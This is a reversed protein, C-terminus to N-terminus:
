DEEPMEAFNVFFPGDASDAPLQTWYAGTPILFTLDTSLPTEGFWSYPESFENADVQGDFNFDLNYYTAVVSVNLANGNDDTVNMAVDVGENDDSQAIDAVMLADEYSTGLYPKFIDEADLSFDYSYYVIGGLHGILDRNDDMRVKYEPGPVKDGFIVVQWRSTALLDPTATISADAYGEDQMADVLAEAAPNSLAWPDPLETQPEEVFIYYGHGTCFVPTENTSVALNDEVPFMENLAPDYILNETFAVNSLTFLVSSIDNGHNDLTYVNEAGPLSGEGGLDDDPAYIYGEFTDPSMNYRPDALLDNDVYAGIVSTSILNWGPQLNIVERKDLRLDMLVPLSTFGSSYAISYDTNSLCATTAIEYQGVDGPYNDPDRDVVLIIAEGSYFGRTSSTKGYVKLYFQGDDDMATAGYCRMPDVAFAKIADYAEDQTETDTNDFGEDVTLFLQDRHFAYVNGGKMPDGNPDYVIGEIRMSSIGKEIVDILGDPEDPVSYKDPMTGQILKMETDDIYNGAIDKLLYKYDDALLHEEIVLTMDSLVIDIASDCTGDYDPIPNTEAEEVTLLLALKNGGCSYNSLGVPDSDSTLFTEITIDNNGTEFYRDAYTPEDWIDPDMDESFTLVVMYTNEDEDPNQSKLAAKVGIFDCDDFESADDCDSDPDDDTGCTEHYTYNILTPDVGDEATVSFDETLDSDFDDAPDTADEIILDEDEDLDFSVTPEWATDEDRGDENLEIEIRNDDQDVGEIIDNDGDVSVVDDEFDGEDISEIDKGFLVDVQDVIGNGNTDLTVASMVWLPTEDVIDVEEDPNSAENENEDEIDDAMVGRIKIKPSGNFGPSLYPHRVNNPVYPDDLDEDEYAEDERLTLVIRWNGDSDQTCSSRDMDDLGEVDWATDAPPDVAEFTNDHIDNETKVEESFVLTLTVEEDEILEAPTKGNEPNLDFIVEKLWPGVEDEPALPVNLYTDALPGPTGAGGKIEEIITIEPLDDKATSEIRGDVYIEITMNDTGSVFFIGLIDAGDEENGNLGDVLEVYYAQSDLVSFDDPDVDADDMDNDFEIEFLTYPPLTPPNIGICRVGEDVIVREVVITVPDDLPYAPNGDEDMITNVIGDSGLQINVVGTGDIDVEQTTTVVLKTSSSSHPEVKKIGQSVEIDYETDSDIEGMDLDESFELTLKRYDDHAVTAGILRPGVKDDAGAVNIKGEPAATDDIVVVLKENDLTWARAKKEADAELMDGDELELVYYLLADDDEIDLYPFLTQDSAQGLYAYDIEAGDFYVMTQPEQLLPEINDINNCNDPILVYYSGAEVYYTGINRDDAEDFNRDYEIDEFVVDNYEGIWDDDDEGLEGDSMANSYRIKFDPTLGGTIDIALSASEALEPSQEAINVLDGDEDTEVWWLYAKPNDDQPDVNQGVVYFNNYFISDAVYNGIPPTFTCQGANMQEDNMAAWAVVVGDEEGDQSRVIIKVFDAGDLYDVEIDAGDSSSNSIKYVTTQGIWTLDEVDTGEYYDVWVDGAKIRRTYGTVELRVMDNQNSIVAKSEFIEKDDEDVVGDVVDYPLVSFNTTSRLTNSDEDFMSVVKITASFDEAAAPVISVGIAMFFSLIMVIILMSKLKM